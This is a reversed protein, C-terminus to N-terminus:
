SHASPTGQAMLPHRGGVRATRSRLGLTVARLYCAIFSLSRATKSVVELYEAVRAGEAKAEMCYYEGKIVQGAM